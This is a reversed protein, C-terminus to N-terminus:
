HPCEEGRAFWSVDRPTRDVPQKPQKPQKPQAKPMVGLAKLEEELTM